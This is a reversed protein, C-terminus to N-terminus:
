IVDSPKDANEFADEKAMATCFILIYCIGVIAWLINM